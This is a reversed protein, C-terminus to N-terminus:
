LLFKDKQIHEDISLLLYFEKELRSKTKALIILNHTWSLQRVLPSLKRDNHYVEYFQKMRWLNKNSYGRLEPYRTNIYLALQTVVGEGWQSSEIKDCIYKGIKWYLEILEANVAKLASIRSTKIIKVVEIFQHEFKQAISKTRTIKNKKM